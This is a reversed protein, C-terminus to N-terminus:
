RQYEKEYPSLSVPTEKGAGCTPCVIKAHGHWGVCIREPRGFVHGWAM